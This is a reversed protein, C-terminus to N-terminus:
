PWMVPEITILGPCKRSALLTDPRAQLWCSVAARPGIRPAGGSVDLVAAHVGPVVAALVCARVRM